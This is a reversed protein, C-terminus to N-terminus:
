QIVMGVEDEDRRLLRVLCWMVISPAILGHRFLEGIFLINALYRAKSKKEFLDIVKQVLAKDEPDEFADMKDQLMKITPDSGDEEFTRQCRALLGNRFTSTGHERMENDVQVKCLDSYMACRMPEGLAKKYIMDVAAPLVDADKMALFEKSFATIKNPESRMEGLKTAKPDMAVLTPKPTNEATPSPEACLVAENRGEADEGKTEGTRYTDAM